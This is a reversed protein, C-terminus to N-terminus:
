NNEYIYKCLSNLETSKLPGTYIRKRYDSFYGCTVNLHSDDVKHGYNVSNYVGTTNGHYSINYKQSLAILSIAMWEGASITTESLLVNIKIINKRNKFEFFEYKFKDMIYYESTYEFQVPIHEYSNVNILNSIHSIITIPNFIPALTLLMIYGDGGSNEKLDIVIEDINHENDIQRFKEFFNHIYKEADGNWFGYYKLILKNGDISLDIDKIDSNCNKSVTYSSHKNGLLNIIYKIKNEDNNPDSKLQNYLIDWDYDFRNIHKKKFCEFATFWNM